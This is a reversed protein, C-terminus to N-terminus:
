LLRRVMRMRHSYKGDEANFIGQQDLKDIRVRGSAHAVRLDGEDNRTLIVGVHIIRGEDNDFFVLDGPECLDLLEIPDGEM